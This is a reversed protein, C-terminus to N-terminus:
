HKSIWKLDKKVKLREEDIKPWSSLTPFKGTGGDKTHLVVRGQKILSNLFDNKFLTIEEPSFPFDINRKCTLLLINCIITSINSHYIWKKHGLLLLLTFCILEALEKARHDSNKNISTMTRSSLLKVTEKSVRIVEDQINKIGNLAPDIFEWGKSFFCMCVIGRSSCCCSLINNIIDSPRIGHPVLRLFFRKWNFTYIFVLLKNNKIPYPGIRPNLSFGLRLLLNQLDSNEYCDKFKNVVFICM